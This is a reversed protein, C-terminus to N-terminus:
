RRSIANAVSDFNKWLFEPEKLYTFLHFGYPKSPKEGNANNMESLVSYCYMTHWATDLNVKHVPDVDDRLKKLHDLQEHYTPERSIMEASIRKAAESSKLLSWPFGDDILHPKDLEDLIGRPAPKQFYRKNLPVSFPSSKMRSSINSLIGLTELHLEESDHYHELKSECDKVFERYFSTAVLKLQPLEM